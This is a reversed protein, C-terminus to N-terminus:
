RKLKIENKYFHYTNLELYLLFAELLYHPHTLSRLRDSKSLMRIWEDREVM